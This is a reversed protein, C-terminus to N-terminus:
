FTISNWIKFFLFYLYSPIKKIKYINIEYFKLNNQINSVIQNLWHLNDNWPVIQSHSNRGLNEKTFALAHQGETWSGPM